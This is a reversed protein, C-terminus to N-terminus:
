NDDPMLKENICRASALQGNADYRLELLLGFKDDPWKGNPLLEKPDAGLAGLLGPIEGHHWVILLGAGYSRAKLDKALKEFDKDTFRHDIPLDLAKSTPEITLRPRHSKASDAAVFIHDFKVPQGDIAFNKFYDAYAKARAEGVPTLGFGDDPKEAHRIIIVTTDKLGSFSDGAFVVTSIMMALLVVAWTSFRIKTQV